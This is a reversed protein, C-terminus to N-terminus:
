LTIYLLGMLLVNCFNTDTDDNRSTESSEIEGKAINQITHQSDTPIQPHLKEELDDDTKDYNGDHINHFKEGTTPSGMNIQGVGQRSEM